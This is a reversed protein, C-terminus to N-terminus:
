IDRDHVNTICIVEEALTHVPFIKFSVVSTLLFNIGVQVLSIYIDFIGKPYIIAFYFIMGICYIQM